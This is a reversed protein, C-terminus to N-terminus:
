PASPGEFVGFQVNMWHIASDAVARVDVGRLDFRDPTSRAASEARADGGQRGEARRINRVLGTM